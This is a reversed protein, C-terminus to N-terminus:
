VAAAAGLDMGCVECQEIYAGKASSGKLGVFSRCSDLIREHVNRDAPSEDRDDSCTMSRTLPKLSASAAERDVLAQGLLKAFHVLVHAPEHTIFAHLPSARSLHGSNCQAYLIHELVSYMNDVEKDVEVLDRFRKSYDTVDVLESEVALLEKSLTQITSVTQVRNLKAMLRRISLSLRQIEHDLQSLTHQNIENQLVSRRMRYRFFDNMIENSTASRM